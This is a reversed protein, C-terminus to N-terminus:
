LLQSALLTQLPIPPVMIKGLVMANNQLLVLATVSDLTSLFWYFPFCMSLFYWRM